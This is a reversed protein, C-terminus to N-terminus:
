RKMNVLTELLQDSTTIIKSNAEFGRQAIIMNSFESALDVNSMELAGSTVKGFGADGPVGEIPTGSNATARFLSNGDKELGGPNAFRALGIQGLNQTTGDTGIGTITGDTGISYSKLQSVPLVIPQDNADLIKQGQLTTLTGNADLDFSGQRTYMIENGYKAKFFGDGDVLMDLSRGTTQTQGQGFNSSLGATKVGLGIQSPNMGGANGTPATAGQMLQSLTDQFQINTSKYGNTNVNAINNGTVDLMTQHAKLGSVGTWLSRLM